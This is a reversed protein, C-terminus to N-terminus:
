RHMRLNPGEVHVCEAMEDIRWVIREGLHGALRRIDLNSTFITVRHWDHRYNIITFLKEQVWDTVREAGLDDLVLLEVDKVLQLVEAESDEARGSYTERIRDLLQPATIFLAPEHKLVQWERLAGVALGTKGTGFDGYLLLSFKETGDPDAIWQRVRPVATQNPHSDLTADQFHVPVSARDFMRRLRHEKWKVWYDCTFCQYARGDIDTFWGTDACEFCGPEDQASLMSDGDGQSWQRRMATLVISLATVDTPTSVLSSSVEPTPPLSGPPAESATTKRGGRTRRSSTSGM